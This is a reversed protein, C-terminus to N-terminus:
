CHGHVIAKRKLKPPEFRRIKKTFFESLSYSQECLRKADEDDPLLNPMEDRFVALCSPELVVIPVGAAIQPRLTLLIEKLLRKARDLMGFDYLPRGCCLSKKPVTVRFGGTELVEIAAQATQPFFYNNFTDPWLIVQQKGNSAQGNQKRRRHFWSTFSRSAFAPIRRQQPIGAVSKAITALGATQTFFNAVAPAPTDLRAS